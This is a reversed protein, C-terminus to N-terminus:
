AGLKGWRAPVEGRISFIISIGMKKGEVLGGRHMGRGKQIPIM